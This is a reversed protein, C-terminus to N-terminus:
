LNAVVRQVYHVLEDDTMKEGRMAATGYSPGLEDHLKAIADTVSTAYAIVAEARTAGEITAAPEYTGSAM